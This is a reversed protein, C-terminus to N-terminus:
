APMKIDGSVIGGAITGLIKAYQHFRLVSSMMRRNFSATRRTIQGTSSKFAKELLAGSAFRHHMQFLHLATRIDLFQRGLDLVLV